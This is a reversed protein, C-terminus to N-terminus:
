DAHQGEIEDEQAFRYDSGKLVVMFREDHRHDKQDDNVLYQTRIGFFQCLQFMVLLLLLVFAIFSARVSACGISRLRSM